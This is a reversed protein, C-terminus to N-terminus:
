DRHQMIQEIEDPDMPIGEMLDINGGQTILINSELRIGLEEEPIYIGPECTIVMGPRFETDKNGVDHVDLGLFHSTGHMYYRQWLPNEKNQREKDEKTYLGLKIHENEWLSCVEKHVQNITKGPKMMSKATRFVHFVSEYVQRQRKTFKGNVPITRSCDAAYNGYEAGFDMLLLEGDKCEKSNANYHLICANKGSAIIPQYAHGRAGSRLFDYTLEAEIEYEKMGPKIIKLIRNFAEGTIRCAEKILAIEEDAKVIRLNHILPSLREYRHLPFNKKLSEAFRHDRSPLEPIIKPNEYLNIYIHEALFAFQALVTELENLKKVTKIGSIRSAEEATLKHGEWKEIKESTERIFLVEKMKEDPFDPFLLLVSKEQNIGTLFFFDSNQRYPYYQDASRIMEDNSNVIAFSKKNLTNALRMRNKCFFEASILIDKM